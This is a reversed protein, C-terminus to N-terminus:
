YVSRSVFYEYDFLGENALIKNIAEDIRGAIREGEGNETYRFKDYLEIRMEIHCHDSVGGGGCGTGGYVVHDHCRGRIAPIMFDQAAITM